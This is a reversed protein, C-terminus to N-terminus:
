TVDNPGDGLPARVARLRCKGELMALYHYVRGKGRYKHREKGLVSYYGYQVAARCLDFLIRATGPNSMILRSRGQRTHTAKFYAETLRSRDVRHYVVAESMGAIKMGAKLIRQALEVDESTGSAGPGLREDFSGIRAFIARRAAFNSGNLLRVERVSRNLELHPITRYRRLLQRIAPDQSEEAPILVAGQAVDYNPNKEFFGAVAELWTDAVLVDDDLFAVIEGTAIVLSRNLVASKGPTIVKLISVPVPFSESTENLLKWTDDTSNNDGIIIQPRLAELGRSRRLSGLLAKLSESRNKTSIAISIQPRV